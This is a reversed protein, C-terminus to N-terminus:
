NLTDWFGRLRRTAPGGFITQTDWFGKVKAERSVAVFRDSEGEPTPTGSLNTESVTVM